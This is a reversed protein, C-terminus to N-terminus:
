RSSSHSGLSSRQARYTSRYTSTVSGTSSINPLTPLISSTRPTPRTLQRSPSTYSSSGFEVMRWATDNEQQDIKFNYFNQSRLSSNRSIFVRHLVYFSFAIFYPFLTLGLFLYIFLFSLRDTLSIILLICYSSASYLEWINLVIKILLHMPTAVDFGNNIKLDM